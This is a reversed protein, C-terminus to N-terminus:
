GKIAAQAAALRAIPVRYPSCSVYDLGAKVCFKVSEPDGGHEGCIGCKLNPRTERGLRVGMKVLQGVGTQDLHQFPDSPLIKENLYDPLFSGIDDRSYGFTMQTLDNTGFSFFEATDAIEDATLAARPIEIMTGVMYSVKVTAKAIIAEAEKRVIKELFDLEAKTGILPIMIEPLVKIPKKLRAVKCAAGIIAKTQMVCLEPYTISLRCGRHGLMPNFEHLSQVRETVKKLPVGLRKAMEQQDKRAHPVFEHLPPDLLRVTVPLGDMAKFIGEFDKQQHKLLKALAAKRSKEDDALIFERIAWIRDGEFFMHETRCLGIGEAGFARAATSDKPTDANTRVNITRNADSWKSVEAYMKYIPDKKAAANNDVVASVVPSVQTPIQGEYVKGTSGNLSIWDGAKYVKEGVTVTKKKYDIKLDGAGCICCKGWGRAVVAAHSTMGGTSTLVGQAAWMGGVDEPSTEHRVLVVKARPHKKVEAEAEHAEFTIMGVAAGPGAPLGSTILQAKKEAEIDFIPFLLQELDEGSLTMLAEKQTLIKPQNEGTFFDKGTAMEVAWRVGALGTRKANRTQLMFLKGEQVTFEVDQPYKYHKELRAMIKQLDAYAKAWVKSDENPMDDLHKPTRIGAVVDEGQADILYEGMPMSHGTGGDRTFAVGTGSEKGMNGFVMSCLNVATGLLGNIKNIQRYKEARESNWSGFVARISLDLQEMPDQPFPKKVKNQYVKKYIDVLEKLQEATLDTDEQAKYKKKISELEVEFDHHTLGTYPGMVVDGFMDIFRRYCDWGTRANGCQEIFGLVSTDTLGLNLVTDMMGPMSVAAGSRVSVLLPDAPDGLKKGMNDELKKLQVKLQKEMEPPYKGGTKSYYACAETSITIGPPVPLNANAMEALNAGKGGLIAKMSTDGETLEKSVGYFYVYKKQAM